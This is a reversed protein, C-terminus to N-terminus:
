FPGRVYSIIIVKFYKLYRLVKPTVNLKMKLLTNLYM